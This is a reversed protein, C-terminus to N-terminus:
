KVTPLQISLKGDRNSKIKGCTFVVVGVEVTNGFYSLQASYRNIVVAVSNM